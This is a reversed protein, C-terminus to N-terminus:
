LFLSWKKLGPQLIWKVMQSTRQRLSVSHLSGWYFAVATKCPCHCKANVTPPENWGHHSWLFFFFFLSLTSIRYSGTLYAGLCLLEKMGLYFIFGRLLWIIPQKHKTQSNFPMAYLSFCLQQNLAVPTFIIMIHLCGSFLLLLALYLVRKWTLDKMDQKHLLLM